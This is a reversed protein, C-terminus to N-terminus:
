LNYTGFEHYFDAFKGDLANPRSKSEMIAFTVLKFKNKFEPENMVTRFQRVVEAVPLKYAGCGFAGLVLSDKGHEIGLRFITRIKNLMIEEGEPTFGGSESRFTTELGGAFKTRGNFSLAAVTIVDCKFADDRLSFFAFRNKRFFTVDPTYVGGFNMDLPYGFSKHPVGSERINKYKPDGYQYLSVSLNSCHCLSEEQAAYGDAYGGGPSKASALNLIAPNYGKDILNRALDICDINVCGTLTDPYVTGKDSVDFAAKVLQTNDLFETYSGFDFEPKGDRWNNFIDRNITYLERCAKRQGFRGSRMTVRMRDELTVTFESPDHVALLEASAEPILDSYDAGSYYRKRVETSSTQAGESLEPLLVFADRHSALIENEDIMKSVDIDNRGLVVVHFASLHEAASKSKAITHVKDAGQIEYIEAEPYQKQIKLMTKHRSPIIGGLEFGWFGLNPESLCVKEIVSRREDESLVFPDNRKVSKLELYRGNTAVFLGKDAGISSVASKLAEIHANTLPNFSGFLVAIKM